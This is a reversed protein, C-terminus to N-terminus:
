VAIPADPEPADDRPNGEYASFSSASSMALALGVRALARALLEPLPGRGGAEGPQLAVLREGYDSMLPPEVDVLAALAAGEFSRVHFGELAEMHRCLAFSPQGRKSIVGSFGFLRCILPRGGYVGCHGRGPAPYPEVLPCSSIAEVEEPSRGRAADLLKGAFEPRQALIWLALYDAEIPLIDPVFTDCCSGCGKPCGFGPAAEARLASSFAAEAAEVEDYLRDLAEAEAELSSGRLAAPLLNAIGM